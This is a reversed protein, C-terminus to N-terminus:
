TLLQERVVRRLVKGIQSRPLDPLIVLERPVAYRALRHACWDRVASLEVRTADAALVVAAVVREGLDGGPLGVVAVDAIGPMRRLEDEVQSPYVNFGGTIIVEKLRDVLRVFGEDDMEVLDGTRLWGGPLMVRATEEPRRWYGAFVQPARVLLEGREGPAVDREPEDPDVVRVDTSPFPVGLAGPRRRESLPNGCIIPSTETMGYGEVLLGGTIREWRAATQASLDMAGSIGYRITRLDAGTKEAAAALRDFMPAVGPFFTAPRRRQAALVAGPEFKPHVVLTAAIWASYTLCLTLGFAHFFPLAAIITQTGRQHGTWAEGQVVNALLNRHTLMAAKPDGTTGGTYLLLAVDDPHFSVERAAAPRHPARRVLDAWRPTGQPVPGRLEARRRRAAPVPLRLAWRKTAPLDASLDVAVVRRAVADPDQAAPEAPGSSGGDAGSGRAAGLASPVAREWCIVVSAGSDDLSSELQAPTYTPNLEVVIAGVRLAAHFAVVHTPCNPLAIAVRDGPRVGLAVLADAGREVRQRLQAFTTTAGLFDLAVRDGHEAAARDLSATVPEEPITVTAPVGAPYARLWPRAVDDPLGSQDPRPAGPETGPHDPLENPM